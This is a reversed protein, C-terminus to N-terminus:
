GAEARMGSGAPHHRGEGPAQRVVAAVGAGANGAIAPEASIPVEEMAPQLGDVGALVRVQRVPQGRGRARIDMQRGRLVGHGATVGRWTCPRVQVQLHAGPWDQDTLLVAGRQRMRATLNRRDAPAVQAGAGAVLVDFGDVLASLVAATEAGPQPVTVVRELGLGCAAAAAWGVDPMGVLACWRDQATAAQALALLVSTSGQVVAIGGRPLGHPLLGTLAQPVPMGRGGAQEAPLAPVSMGVSTEAAALARRAATMKAQTTTM